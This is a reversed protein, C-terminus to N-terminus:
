RAGKLRSLFTTTSVRFHSERIPLFAFLEQYNLIPTSNEALPFALVVEATSAALSAEETDPVQRSASRSLGTALHRTVHYQKTSTARDGMTQRGTTKLVTRQMNTSSSKLERSSTWNGEEDYFNLDIKKLNRLFLLSTDQLDSLQAFITERLQKLHYEGETDHLFLTMRTMSTPLEVDTDQWIPVAMGLGSDGRRHKFYFSYHGSQVHVKWAAIFVSKFGIGKAGIYGHSSSKSSKGITCIAQLDQETFGDENCELVIRDPYM